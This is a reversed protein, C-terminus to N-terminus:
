PPDRFADQVDHILVGDRTTIWAAGLIALVGVAAVVFPGLAGYLLTNLAVAGGIVGRDWGTAAELQVTLLGPLVSIALFFVPGFVTTIIFWKTRVRELYERKIVAM